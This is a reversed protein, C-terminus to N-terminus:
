KSGRAAGDLGKVIFCHSLVPRHCSREGYLQKARRLAATVCKVLHPCLPSSDERLWQKRSVNKLGLCDRHGVARLGNNLNIFDIRRSAAGTRRRWSLGGRRGIDLCAGFPEDVAFQRPEMEISAHKFLRG